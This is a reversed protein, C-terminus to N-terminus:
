LRTKFIIRFYRQVYSYYKLNRFVMKGVKEQYM